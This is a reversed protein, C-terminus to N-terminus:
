AYEVGPRRRGGASRWRRTTSGSSRARSRADRRRRRGGRAGHRHGHQLRPADRRRSRAGDGAPTSSSRCRGAGVRIRRAVGAPLSRPLNDTLGGGTIHALAHLRRDGLLPPRDRPVLPAPRAAGRRVTPRRPRVARRRCRDDIDLGLRDFLIRRALSYGNTHLGASPLGVCSTAPVRGRLRRAPARADVVGVIFGVLEYDGRSTSAPCRRRRAASCRAATRAAAARRHREVLEVVQAPELKGAGFYDLFFLPRAGQVLIDNVCHNVLDHGVTSYDGALQAVMLKTGVGDASAVLVPERM